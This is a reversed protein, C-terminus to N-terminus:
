LLGRLRDMTLQDGCWVVLRKIGTKLQELTNSWGLQGLWEQTLRQNDKYSAEVVNVTGLLYQLTQHEPGCPLPDVLPPPKFHQSKAGGYIKLNFEPADLLFQLVSYEAQLQVHPYPKM